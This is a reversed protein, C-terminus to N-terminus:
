SLLRNLTGIWNKRHFTKDTVEIWPCQIKLDKPFLAGWSSTFGVGLPLKEQKDYGILDMAWNIPHGHHGKDSLIAVPISRRMAVMAIVLGYPIESGFQEITKPLDRKIVTEEIEYHQVCSVTGIPSPLLFLDTLIADFPLIADEKYRGSENSALIREAERFTKCVTVEHEQLQLLAQDINEQNDEIVLVRAM